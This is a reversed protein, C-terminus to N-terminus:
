KIRALEKDLMEINKEHLRQGEKLRALEAAPRKTNALQERVAALAKAENTREEVLLNRRIDDRRNQTSPDVKPFNAPSPNNKASSTKSGSSKRPTPVTTVLPDPTDAVKVAGPRHRDSYHHNGEADVYKYIAAQAQSALAIALLAFCIKLMARTYPIDRVVFLPPRLRGEM